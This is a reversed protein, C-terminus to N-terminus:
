SYKPYAVHTDTKPITLGQKYEEVPRYKGDDDRPDQLRTTRHAAAPRVAPVQPHIEADGGGPAASGDGRGVAALVRFEDLLGALVFVYQSLNFFLFQMLFKDQLSSQPWSVFEYTYIGYVSRCTCFLVSNM